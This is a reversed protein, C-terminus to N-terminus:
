TNNKISNNEVKKLDNYTKEIDIEYYSFSNCNYCKIQIILKKDKIFHKFQLQKCKNCRFENM